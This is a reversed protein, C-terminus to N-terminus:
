IGASHFMKGTNIDQELPLRITSKPGAAQSLDSFLRKWKQCKVNM